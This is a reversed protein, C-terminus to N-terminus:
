STVPDLSRARLSLWTELYLATKLFQTNMGEYGARMTELAQRFPKREVVGLDALHEGTLLHEIRPWALRLGELISAGHRAAAKGTRVTEPLIGRLARRMLIRNEGPKALHTWDLGLLFEVLPRHLLPMREDPLLDGCPPMFCLTFRYMRERADSEFTRHHSQLYDHNARGIEDRFSPRIWGPMPMRFHGAHVDLTGLSCDRLLHWASFSGTRLHGAFHRTWDGIRGAKLWEALYVPSPTGKQLLSDAGHGTIRSRLGRSEAFERVARYIAGAQIFGGSPLESAQFTQFPLCHEIELAQLEIGYQARVAEQFRREDSRRSVTSWGVVGHYGKGARALMAAVASTASSDCGGSLDCLVPAPSRLAHQVGDFLLTRFAEDLEDTSTFRQPRGAQPQWVVREELDARRQVLVRGRGLERIGRWITRGSWPSMTGAFYERLVDRDLAPRAEPFQEFLLRLNSTIWLRDGHRGYWIRRVGLGDQGAVLARQRCDFVAYAYEGIVKATLKSGWAAYAAALVAGDAANALAPQGLAYAIEQRNDVRGEYVLVAGATDIPQSECQSEPTAAYHRVVLAVGHARTQSVDGNDVRHFFQTLEMDPWRAAIAFGYPATSTTSKVQRESLM